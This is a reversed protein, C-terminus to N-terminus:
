FPPQQSVIPLNAATLMATISEVSHGYTRSLQAISVGKLYAQAIKNRQNLPVSPPAEIRSAKAIEAVRELMSDMQVLVKPPLEITHEEKTGNLHSITQHIRFVFGKTDHRLDLLYKANRYVLTESLISTTM